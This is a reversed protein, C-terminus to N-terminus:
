SHIKMMIHIVLQFTFILHFQHTKTPFYIIIMFFKNKGQTDPASPALHGWKLTNELIDISNNFNSLSKIDDVPQGSTGLIRIGEITCEYPNTVCQFSNYKSANPFLCKYFPQQPMLYNSPDFGGPM